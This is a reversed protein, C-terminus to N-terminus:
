LNEHAATTGTINTFGVSLEGSADVFMDGLRQDAESLCKWMRLCRHLEPFQRERQESSPKLIGSEGEM